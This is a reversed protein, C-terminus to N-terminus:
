IPIGGCGPSTYLHFGDAPKLLGSIELGMAVGTVLVCYSNVTELIPPPQM